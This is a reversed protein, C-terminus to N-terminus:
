RTPIRQLGLERLDDDTLVQLTYGPALFVARSRDRVAPPLAERLSRMAQETAEPTGKDGLTIVVLFQGAPIPVTTPQPSYDTGCSQCVMGFTEREMPDNCNPCNERTYPWAARDIDPM